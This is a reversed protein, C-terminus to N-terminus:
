VVDCVFKEPERWGGFTKEIEQAVAITLHDCGPNAVIQLGIPLQNKDFGIPCQTVPFGLVNFISMYSYNRVNYLGEHLYHASSIFSPCILVGNDGLLEGFQRKLQKRIEMMKEYNTDSLRESINKLIGYCIAPFTHSSMFFIYKLTETLVNKSKKPDDLRNFMSYVDNIRPLIIIALELSLKLDKLNAKQVKVSSTAELHRMVDYIADKVDSTISNPFPGFDDVYFFKLDKLCVKKNYTIKAEDSQSMVTLLLPLDTAYRVM